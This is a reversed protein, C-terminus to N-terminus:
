FGARLLDHFAFRNLTTFLCNHNLLGIGLDDINWGVIGYDDVALGGIRIIRIIIRSVNPSGTEPEPGSKNQSCGPAATPTPAAAPTAAVDVDVVVVFVYIVVVLLIINISALSSPLPLMMRFM